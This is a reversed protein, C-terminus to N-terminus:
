PNKKKEKSRTKVFRTEPPFFLQGGAKETKKKRKRKKRGLRPFACCNHRKVARDAWRASLGCTIASWLYLDRVCVLVRREGRVKNQYDGLHRPRAPSATATPFSDQWWIAAGHWRQEQRLDGTKDKTGRQLLSVWLLYFKLGIKSKKKFNIQEVTLGEKPTKKLIYIYKKLRENKSAKCQSQGRTKIILHHWAGAWHQFPISDDEKTNKVPM